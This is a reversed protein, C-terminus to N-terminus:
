NNKDHYYYSIKHLYIRLLLYILSSVVATIIVDVM